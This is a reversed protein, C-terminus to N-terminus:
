TKEIHDSMAVYLQEVSMERKPRREGVLQFEGVEFASSGPKRLYNAIFCRVSSLHHDLVDSSFPELALLSTWEHFNRAPLGRLM